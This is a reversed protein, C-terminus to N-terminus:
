YVFLTLFYLTFISKLFFAGAFRDIWKAPAEQIKQRRLDM